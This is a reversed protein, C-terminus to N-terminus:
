CNIARRMSHMEGTGDVYTDREERGSECAGGLVTLVTFICKKYRKLAEIICRCVLVRM